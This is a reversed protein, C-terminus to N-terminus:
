DHTYTLETVSIGRRNLWSELIAPTHFATKSNLGFNM